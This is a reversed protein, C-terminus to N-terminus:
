FDRRLKYVLAQKKEFLTKACIEACRECAYTWASFSCDKDDSVIFPDEGFDQYYQYLEDATMGPKYHSHLEKDVIEKAVALAEESTQYEGHASRESEDMYHYNDDVCVTYKM